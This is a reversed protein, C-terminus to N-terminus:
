LLRPHQSLNHHCPTSFLGLWPHFITNRQSSGKSVPLRQGGKHFCVLSYWFLGRNLFQLNCVWQKDDCPGERSLEKRLPCLKSVKMVSWDDLNRGKRCKLTWWPKLFLYTQQEWRNEISIFPFPATYTARSGAVNSNNDVRVALGFGVKM